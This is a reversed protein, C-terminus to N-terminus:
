YGITRLISDYREIMKIFLSDVSEKKLRAKLVGSDTDDLYKQLMAKESQSLNNTAIKSILTVLIESIKSLDAIQDGYNGVAKEVDFQTKMKQFVYKAGEQLSIEEETLPRFERTPFLPANHIPDRIEIETKDLLKMGEYQESSIILPNYEAMLLLDEVTEASGVKWDNDLPLICLNITENTVKPIEKNIQRYM